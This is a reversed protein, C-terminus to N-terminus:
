ELITHIDVYLVVLNCLILVSIKHLHSRWQEASKAIERNSDCTVQARVIKHCDRICALNESAISDSCPICLHGSPTM